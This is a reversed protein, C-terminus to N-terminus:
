TSSQVSLITLEYYTGGKFRFPKKKYIYFPDTPNKTLKCTPIAKWSKWLKELINQLRKMM